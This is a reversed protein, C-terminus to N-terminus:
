RAAACTGSLENIATADLEPWTEEERSAADTSSAPARRASNRDRELTGRVVVQQNLFPRLREPELGKVRYTPRPADVDAGDTKSTAASESAPTEIRAQTLLFREVRPTNTQTTAAVLCGSVRAERRSRDENDRTLDPLDLLDGPRKPATETPPAPVVEPTRPPLQPSQPSGPAQAGPAAILAVVCALSVALNSFAQGAIKQM